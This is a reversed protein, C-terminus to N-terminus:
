NGYHFTAEFFPPGHLVSRANLASWEGISVGRMNELLLRPTAYYANKM